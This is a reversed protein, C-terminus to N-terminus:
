KVLLFSKYFEVRDLKLCYLRLFHPEHLFDSSNTNISQLIGQNFPPAMLSICFDQLSTQFKFIREIAEVCHPSSNEQQNSLLM